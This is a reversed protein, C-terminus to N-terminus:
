FYKRAEDLTEFKEKEEKTVLWSGVPISAHETILDKLGLTTHRRSDRRSPSTSASSSEEVDRDGESFSLTSATKSKKAVGYGAIISRLLINDEVVEFQQGSLMSNRLGSKQNGM